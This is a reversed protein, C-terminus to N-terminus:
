LTNNNWHCFSTSSIISWDQQDEFQGTMVNTLKLNTPWRRTMIPGSTYEQYSQIVMSQMSNKPLRVQCILHCQRYPPQVMGPYYNVTQFIVYHIINRSIPISRCTLLVNILLVRILTGFYCYELINFISLIYSTFFDKRNKARRSM